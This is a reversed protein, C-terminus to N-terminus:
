RSEASKRRLRIARACSYIKAGAYNGMGRTENIKAIVSSRLMRCLTVRPQARKVKVGLREATDIRSFLDSAHFAGGGGEGYNGFTDRISRIFIAYNGRSTVCM